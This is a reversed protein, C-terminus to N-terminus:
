PEAPPAHDSERPTAGPQDTEAGKPRSNAAGPGSEPPTSRPTELIGWWVLSVEARLGHGQDPPGSLWDVTGSAQRRSSRADSHARPPGSRGTCEEPRAPDRLPTRHTQGRMADNSEGWGGLRVRRRVGPAMRLVPAAILMRVSRRRKKRADAAPARQHAKTIQSEQRPEPRDRGVLGLQVRFDHPELRLDLGDDPQQLVGRALLEELLDGPPDLVPQGILFHQGCEQQGAHAVDLRPGMDAELEVRHEHDVRCM